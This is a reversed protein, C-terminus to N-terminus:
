DVGKNDDGDNEEEAYRQNEEEEAKLEDETKDGEVIPQEQIDTM